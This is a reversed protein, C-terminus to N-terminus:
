KRKITISHKEHDNLPHHILRQEDRLYEYSGDSLLVTIGKPYQPTPIFLETDGGEPRGSYEYRMRGTRFNFSLHHPTGATYIPYPRICAPLARGGSYISEPRKRQDPSYISFDEENWQDGRLNSNDATYNWLTSDMLNAEVARYCRDMARAQPRYDGSLFSKKSNMDFPIGFEGLLTPIGGMAKSADKIGKLQRNFVQNINKKGILVRRNDKDITFWGYYQKSLLTMVDYWHAANVIPKLHDIDRMRPLIDPEDELFIVCDPDAERMTSAFRNIFPMMYDKVFDVPTGHHMSFHDSKLLVPRGSRDADWVGEKRWICEKGKQWARFGAQNVLRTGRRILGIPWLEWYDVKQPFGDGLAMSQLVTPAENLTLEGAYRTLDQCGIWGHSPENLTDYGIVHSMGKLRMAVQQIANIYHDQLFDQISVDDVLFGPAFDRGGFFLTFMTAAALKYNNTPWLMRPYSDGVMNHIFAAGSSHLNRLNFGVLELTWGPAGDGGTFRSWVDEHPDIFLNLGHEGAKKVIETLYDLYQEDYIGPGAHEIAEWTVLLRLFNFGWTKLRKFHENAEELPFPRGIFSVTKHDFFGDRNYTAGNPVTPLKSSGGLNIGRLMIIRGEPDIFHSRDITLNPKM